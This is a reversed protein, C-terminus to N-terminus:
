ETENHYKFFEHPFRCCKTEIPRFPFTQEAQTRDLGLKTPRCALSENAPFNPEETLLASEKASQPLEPVPIHALSTSLLPDLPTWPPEPVVEVATEPETENQTVESEGETVDGPFTDSVSATQPESLEDIETVGLESGEKEEVKETENWTLDDKTGRDVTSNSQFLSFNGTISTPKGENQTLNAGDTYNGPLFGSATYGLDEIKEDEWGPFVIVETFLTLFSFLVVVLLFCLLRRVAM